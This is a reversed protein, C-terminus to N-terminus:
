LRRLPLSINEQRSIAIHFSRWSEYEGAPFVGTELQERREILLRNNEIDFRSHFSGYDSDISTAPPTEENEFAYGPPLQISIKESKDFVEDWVIPQRRETNEKPIFANALFPNVPLFFVSGTRNLIQTYFAEVELTCVPADDSCTLEFRRLEEPAFKWRELMRKRQEAVPERSLFRYYEQEAGELRITAKALIERENLMELDIDYQIAPEAPEYPPIYQLRSDKGALVLSKRNTNQSGAYQYPRTKSTCDMWWDLAPVYLIVHNFPSFAFDEDLEPPDEGLWTVVPHSEVGAERLLAMMFNSLAKCDGYKNKEVYAADFPQWGGIGLQVSVYRTSQALYDFMNLVLEETSASRAKIEQVKAKTEPGLQQRGEYLQHLFHGFEQWSSMSGKIKQVTFQGASVLLAPFIESAAPGYPESPIAQLSTLEWQYRRIEKEDSVRPEPMGNLTKYRLSLHAPMEITYSAKELAQFYTQPRWDPFNVYHLGSMQVEAELQWTFPTPVPRLDIYKVRSDEYVSFNSIASRDQFDKLKYKRIEQGKENYVTLTLNKIKLDSNYPFSIYYSQEKKNLVSVVKKNQFVSKEESIVQLRMEELRVIEAQYQSFLPARLAAIALFLIVSKMKM